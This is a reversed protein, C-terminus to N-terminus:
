SVIITEKSNDMVISRDTDTRWADLISIIVERQTPDMFDMSHSINLQYFYFYTGNVRLGLMEAGAIHREKINEWKRKKSTALELNMQVAAIANALLQPFSDIVSNKVIKNKAVVMRSYGYMDIINFDAQATSNM